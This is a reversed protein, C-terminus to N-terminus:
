DLNSFENIFFEKVKMLKILKLTLPQATKRKFQVIRDEIKFYLMATTRCPRKVYPASLNLQCPDYECTIYRYIFLVILRAKVM